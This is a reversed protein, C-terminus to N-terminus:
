RLLYHQQQKKTTDYPSSIMFLHTKVHKQSISPVVHRVYRQKTHKTIDFPPTRSDKHICTRLYTRVCIVHLNHDRHQACDIRFCLELCRLSKSPFILFDSSLAIPEFACNLDAWHSRLFSVPTAVTVHLNHNRLQACNIGYSLEFCRVSKSPFNLLDSSLM